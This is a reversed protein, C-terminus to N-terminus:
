FFSEKIDDYDWDFLQNNNKYESKNIIKQQHLNNDKTWLETINSIWEASKEHAPTTVEIKNEIPNFALRIKIWNWDKDKVREWKIISYLSTLRQQWDIIVKKAINDKEGWISHTNEASDIDWLLFFWVPYWQYLSDFLDRVQSTKWVFPRQLDPLWITWNDLFTLIGWISYNTTKYLQEM